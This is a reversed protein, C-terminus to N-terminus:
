ETMEHLQDLLRQANQKANRNWFPWDGLEADLVYALEREILDADRVGTLNGYYGYTFGWYEALVVHNPLYAPDVEISSEVLALGAVKDGGFFEPSMILLSGLSSSPSGGWYTPDVEVARRFLALVNEQQMLGVIPNIGCLIGWNSATWHLAAVDTAVAIAEMFDDGALEAVQPDLYLSGLGYSKGKELLVADEPTDGVTFTSAEYCLQSLRNLVFAQSQVPMDDLYILVTEYLAIAETMIEQDDRSAYALDAQALLDSPSDEGSAIVSGVLLILGVAFWRATSRSLRTM